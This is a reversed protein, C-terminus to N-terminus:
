GVIPTESIPLRELARSTAFLLTHARVTAPCDQPSVVGCGSRADTDADTVTSFARHFHARSSDAVLLEVQLSPVSLPLADRLIEYVDSETVSMELAQQLVTEFVRRTSARRDALQRRRARQGLTVAGVTTILGFALDLALVIIRGSELHDTGERLDVATVETLQDVATETVTWMRTFGLRVATVMATVAASPAGSVLPSLNSVAKQFGASATLLDRAVGSMGIARLTKALDEVQTQETTILLAGKALDVTDIKAGTPSVLVLRQEVFLQWDALTTRLDGVRHRAEGDRGVQGLESRGSSLPRVSLFASLAIALLLAAGFAGIWRRVHLPGHVSDFAPGFRM